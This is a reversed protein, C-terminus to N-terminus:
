PYIYTLFIDFFSHIRRCHKRCKFHLATRVVLHGPCVKLSAFLFFSNEEFVSLFEIHLYLQWYSVGLPIGKLQQVIHGSQKM